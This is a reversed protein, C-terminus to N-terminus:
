TRFGAGNSSRSTAPDFPVLGRHPWDVAISKMQLQFGNSAYTTASECYFTLMNPPVTTQNITLMQVGGGDNGGM